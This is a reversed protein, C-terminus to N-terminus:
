HRRVILHCRTVIALQEQRRQLRDIIREMSAPVEGQDLRDLVVALDLDSKARSGQHCDLCWTEMFPRLESESDVPAVASGGPLQLVTLILPLACTM